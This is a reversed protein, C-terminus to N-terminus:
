PRAPTQLAAVRLGDPGGCAALNRQAPTKRPSSQRASRCPEPCHTQQFLRILLHRSTNQRATRLSRPRSFFDAAAQKSAMSLENHGTSYSPPYCFLDTAWRGRTSGSTCIERM